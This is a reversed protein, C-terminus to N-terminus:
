RERPEDGRQLRTRRSPGPPNGARLLVEWFGFDSMRLLILHAVALVLSIGGFILWGVSEGLLLVSVLMLVAYLVRALIAGSVIVINRKVDMWALVCFCAFVVHVMSWQYLGFVGVSDPAGVWRAMRGPLLLGAAALLMDYVAGVLMTNGLWRRNRELLDYPSDDLWMRQEM